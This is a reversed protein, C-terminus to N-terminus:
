YKLIKVGKGTKGEVWEVWRGKSELTGFAAAKDGSFVEPRTDEKEAVNEFRDLLLTYKDAKLGGAAFAAKIEEESRVVSSIRLDDLTLNDHSTYSEICFTGGELDEWPNGASLTAPLIVQRGDLYLSVQLPDGSWTLALYHWEGKKLRPTRPYPANTRDLKSATQTEEVTTVYPNNSVQGLQKGSSMFFFHFWDPKWINQYNLTARAPNPQGEKGKGYVALIPFYHCGPVKADPEAELRMWLEITGEEARLNGTVPYTIAAARASLGSCALIATLIMGPRLFAMTTELRTINM